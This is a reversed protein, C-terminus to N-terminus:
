PVPPELDMLSGSTSCILAQKDTPADFVKLIDPTTALHGAVPGLAQPRLISMNFPSIRLSSSSGPCWLDPTPDWIFVREAICGANKSLFTQHKTVFPSFGDGNFITSTSGSTQAQSAFSMSTAGLGHHFSGLNLTACVSRRKTEDQRAAAFRCKHL